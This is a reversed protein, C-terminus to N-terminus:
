SKDNHNRSHEWPRMGNGSTRDTNEPVANQVNAIGQEPTTWRLRPRKGFMGGLPLAAAQLWVGTHGAALTLTTILGVILVLGMMRRANLSGLLDRAVRALDERRQITEPLIGLWDSENKGSRCWM